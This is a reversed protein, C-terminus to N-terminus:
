KMTSKLFKVTEAMSKNWTTGYFTHDAGKYSVFKVSKNLEQLQTVADTAWRQPCTRDASGHVVLIPDTIRDFYNIASMENWFTPNAQTSGFKKFTEPMWKKSNEAAKTSVSAFLVASDYLGPKSVLTNYGIGGGMSRGFLSVKGKDVYPLNSSKIALAANIVDETYGLRLRDMLRPDDDSGAHNRYDTHLAVFGKRALYDRERSLGQGSKYIKPDIYGHALVVVPFPGKGTPVNMVGTITFGNSEYTISYSTYASNRALRKGVQLDRGEFSQQFFAPLSPERTAAHTPVAGSLLLILALTLRAVMVLRYTLSEPQAVPFEPGGPGLM